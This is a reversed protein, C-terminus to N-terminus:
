VEGKPDPGFRNTKAQGPVLALVAVQILAVLGAIRASEGEVPPLEDGSRLVEVWAALRDMAEGPGAVPGITGFLFIALVAVAHVWGSV